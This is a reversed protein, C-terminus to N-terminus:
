DRSPTPRHRSPCARRDEGAIALGDCALVFAPDSSLLQRGITTRRPRKWIETFPHVTWPAAAPDFPPCTPDCRQQYDGSVVVRKGKCEIIAQV